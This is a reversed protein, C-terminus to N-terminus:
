IKEKAKASKGKNEKAKVTRDKYERKLMEL